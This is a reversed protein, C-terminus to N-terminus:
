LAAATVSDTYTFQLFWSGTASPSTIEIAWTEPVNTQDIEFTQIESNGEPHDATYANNAELSVTFHSQDESQRHQGRIRYYRGETLTYYASRLPEM